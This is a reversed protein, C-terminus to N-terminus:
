APEAARLCMWARPYPQMGLAGLQPQKRLAQGWRPWQGGLGEAWTWPFGLVELRQPRPGLEGLMPRRPQAPGPASAVTPMLVSSTIAGPKQGDKEWFRRRGTEAAGGSCPSGWM